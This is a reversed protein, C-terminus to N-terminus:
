LKAKRRLGERFTNMQRMEGVKDTWRLQGEQWTSAVHSKGNWIRSEVVGRGNGSRPTRSEQCRWEGERILLDTSNGHFVVSHSLSGMAKINDGIKTANSVVFVSNRDSAYLHACAHLNPNSTLSGLPTYLQLQRYDQPQYNANYTRMDVKRVDLGPFDNPQPHQKIHRYYWPADVRPLRPWDWPDKGKLVEEYKKEYGEETQHNPGLEEDRKFSVMSTFCVKGLNKELDQPKFPISPPSTTPQQVKVERTCYSRGESLHTITYVYPRDPFAPLTFFGHVNHVCMGREGDGGVTQAAAWVAQAFVHGGYSAGFGPSYAPNVSMFKEEERGTGENGNGKENSELRELKMLEVFSLRPPNMLDTAM